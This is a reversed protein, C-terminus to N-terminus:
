PSLGPIYDAPDKSTSGLRIEFHLHPGTSLGTSGVTGILTGSGVTQNLVTDIRSLHGYITRLGGSHEIVIYNGLVESWAQEVVRGARAALVPSGAPAALDIGSHMRHRGDIPSQRMGYASSLSAGSVPLRFGPNLFFGRETASFRIGALFRFERREPLFVAVTMAEPNTATATTPPAALVGPAAESRALLLYDLDNRINDPLFLGHLSPVLLTQGVLLAAPSVLGNLSAITDYPLNFRAALALLDDGPRVRYAAYFLDPWSGGRMEARYGLAISDQLQKFVADSSDLRGVWPYPLEGNGAALCVAAQCLTLCALLWARRV